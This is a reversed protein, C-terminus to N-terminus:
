PRESDAGAPVTNVKDSEPDTKDKDCDGCCIKEDEMRINHCRLCLYREMVRYKPSAFHRIPYNPIRVVSPEIEVANETNVLCGCDVCTKTHSCLYDFGVELGDFRRKVEALEAALADIKKSNGIGFVVGGKNMRTRGVAVATPM